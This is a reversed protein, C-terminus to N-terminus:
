ITLNIVIIHNCINQKNKDRSTCYNVCRVSIFIVNDKIKSFVDQCIKVYFVNSKQLFYFIDSLEKLKQSHFLKVLLNIIDLHCKKIIEPYPSLHMDMIVNRQFIRRVCLIKYFVNYFSTMTMEHFIILFQM